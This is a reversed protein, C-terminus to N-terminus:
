IMLLLMEPLEAPESPPAKTTRSPVVVMMSLVNESLTEPLSPPATLVLTPLDRGGGGGCSAVILTSLLGAAEPLRRWAFAAKVREFAM